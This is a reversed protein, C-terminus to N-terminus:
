PTCAAGRLATESPLGLMLNLCQVAQSAAGKGLNDIAVLIVATKGDQHVALDAFATGRVHRLEPSDDRFRILPRDHYAERLLAGVDTAPDVTAFCTAFIGRDVPASLPVFQLDPIEGLQGCLQLIEPVHQHSLPKYAKFNVFREPHHTGASPTNGSGTSGTAAAVHVPGKLAKFAVLPAVALEIATAFCGPVAVRTSKRIADENWEPQGYAWARNLRHDASLDLIRKADYGILPEVMEAAAGHPTALLVADLQSLVAPDFEEIRRNTCGLLAPVAKHLPEGIRTRGVVHAVEVRPHGILLRVLESGAYGTAGIVGVRAKETM